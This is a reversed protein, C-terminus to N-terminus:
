KWKEHQFDMKFLPLKQPPPNPTQSGKPSIKKPLNQFYKDKFIQPYNRSEPNSFCINLIIIM